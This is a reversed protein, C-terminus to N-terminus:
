EVHDAGRVQLRIGNPLELAVEWEPRPAVPPSVEMFQGPPIAEVKYYRYQKRFTHLAIGERTCFARQQLGSREYRRMIAQWETASRQVRGKTTQRM